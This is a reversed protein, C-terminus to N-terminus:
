KRQIINWGESKCAFPISFPQVSLLYTCCSTYDGRYKKDGDKTVIYENNIFDKPNM